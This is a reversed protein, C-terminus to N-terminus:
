KTSPPPSNRLILGQRHNVAPSDTLTLTPHSRASRAVVQARAKSTDDGSEDCAYVHLVGPELQEIKVVLKAM